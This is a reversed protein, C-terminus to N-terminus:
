NNLGFRSPIPDNLIQPVDFRAKFHGSMTLIKTTALMHTDVGVRFADGHIQM